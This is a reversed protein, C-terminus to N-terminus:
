DVFRARREDNGAWRRDFAFLRERADLRGDVPENVVLGAETIAEDGIRHSEEFFGCGGGLFAVGGGALHQLHFHAVGVVLLKEAEELRGVPALEEILDLGVEIGVEVFFLEVAELFVEEVDDVLALMLGVEGFDAALLEAGVVGVREDQGVESRFKGVDLFVGGRGGFLAFSLFEGRLVVVGFDGLLNVGNGLEEAGIGEVLAVDFVDDLFTLDHDDIFVGATDHGTATPGVSEMLGDLGLFADHDLTLRAGVGRDRNLIVEAHILFERAHGAGGLGFGGLELVDVAEGDLDDRRIAGADAHIAVVRNEFGPAVFKVGDDFFDFSGVLATLGDEDAGDADFRGLHKGAHQFAGADNVGDEVSFKVLLFGLDDGARALATGDGDGGVHGATAGVDFEAFADAFETAEHDDAGLAMLGAADVALQAATARTLAVGTERLKEEREFVLEHAKEQLAIEGRAEHFAGHFFAFFELM